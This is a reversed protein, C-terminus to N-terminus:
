SQGWCSGSPSVEFDGLGPRGTGRGSPRAARGFRGQRTIPFYPSKHYVLYYLLPRRSPRPDLSRPLVTLARSPILVCVDAHGDSVAVIDDLQPTSVEFVVSDRLAEIRHLMGPANRWCGGPQVLRAELLDPNIGSWVRARGSFLYASEEKERHFHLSLAQGQEIVLDKSRLPRYSGV